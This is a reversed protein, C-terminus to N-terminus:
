CVYACVCVCVCLVCLISNCYLLVESLFVVERCHVFQKGRDM